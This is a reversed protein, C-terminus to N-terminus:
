AATTKVVAFANEGDLVAQIQAAETIQQGKQYDAFPQIVVLHFPTAQQKIDEPM